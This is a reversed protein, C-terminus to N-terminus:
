KELTCHVFCLCYMYICYNKALKVTVESFRTKYRTLVREQKRFMAVLEEKTAGEIRAPTVAAGPTGQEVDSEADSRGGFSGPSSPPLSSQREVSRKPTETDSM